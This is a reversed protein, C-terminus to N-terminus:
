EQNKKLDDEQGFESRLKDFFTNLMVKILRGYLFDNEGDKSWIITNHFITNNDCIVRTMCTKNLCPANMTNTSDYYLCTYLCETSVHTSIITSTSVCSHFCRQPSTMYVCKTPIRTSTTTSVCGYFHRRSSTISIYETSVCTFITTFVYGYLRRRPSDTTVYETSVGMHSWKSTVGTSITTPVYGYLHRSFCLTM